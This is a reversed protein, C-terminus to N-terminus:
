GGKLYYCCCHHIYETPAGKYLNLHVIIEFEISWWVWFILDSADLDEISTHVGEGNERYFLKNEGRMKYRWEKSEM